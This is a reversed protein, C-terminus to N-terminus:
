AVRLISNEQLSKRITDESAYYSLFDGKRCIHTRPEQMLIVKSRRGVTVLGVGRRQCLELFYSALSNNRFTLSSISIGYWQENAKYKIVEDMIIRIKLMLYTKELYSHLIFGIVATVFALSWYLLTNGFTFSLAGGVAFLVLFTLYRFKSLGNKKFSTLLTALQESHKFTITALFCYNDPHKFSILGEVNEGHKNKECRGLLIKKAGQQMTYYGQLYDFAFDEIKSEQFNPM